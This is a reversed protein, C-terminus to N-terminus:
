RAIRLRVHPHRRSVRPWSSPWIPTLSAPMCPLWWRAQGSLEMRIGNPDTVNALIAKTPSVRTESVNAGRAKFMATAEPMHEVHPAIDKYKSPLHEEFLEPPEVIHDDVSVLIMDDLQM